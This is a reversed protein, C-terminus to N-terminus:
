VRAQTRPRWSTVNRRPAKPLMTETEALIDQWSRGGFWDIAGALYQSQSPAMKTLQQGSPTPVKPLKGLYEGVGPVYQPLWAPTEPGREYLARAQAAVAEAEAGSEETESIAQELEARRGSAELQGTAGMQLDASTPMARLEKGWNAINYGRQEGSAATTYPNPKHAVFWRAVENAPGTMQSALQNRWLEFEQAQKGLISPITYGGYRAALEQQGRQYELGKETQWREFDRQTQSEAMQRQMGFLDQGYMVWEEPTYGYISKEPLTTPATVKAGPAGDKVAGTVPEGKLIYTRGITVPKEVNVQWQRFYSQGQASSWLARARWGYTAQMAAAFRNWEQSTVGLNIAWQPM